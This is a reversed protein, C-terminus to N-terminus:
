IFDKYIKNVAYISGPRINELLATFYKLEKNREPNYKASKIMRMLNKIWSVNQYNSIYKFNKDLIDTPIADLTQHPVGEIPWVSVNQKELFWHIWDETNPVNYANVVISYEIKDKGLVSEYVNCNKEIAPWSAGHRIYEMTPGIGDLSIQVKINKWKALRDMWTKNTNTANTTFSLDVTKNLGLEYCYDLFDYLDQQISPEGGIVQVGKLTSMDFNKYDQAPVSIETEIGQEKAIMSSNSDNCMRCKLNCLNSPRYDFYIIHKLDRELLNKENWKSVVHQVSEDEHLYMRRSKNGSREQEICVGCSNRVSKHKVMSKKIKLLHDSIFYDQISGKHKLGNWECCPTNGELVNGHQLNVWPAWCFPKHM